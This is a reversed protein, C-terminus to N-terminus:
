GVVNSMLVQRGGDHGEGSVVGGESLEEVLHAARNYGIRFKRQIRSISVSQEEVVFLEVEKYLNDPKAAATPSNGASDEQDVQPLHQPDALAVPEGDIIASLDEGGFADLLGPFLRSLELTMLGFATDFRALADDANVDNLKEHFADGFQLKSITLEADLAFSLNEEWEVSIRTVHMGSAIYNRLEDSELDMGKATLKGGDESPDELLCDNGLKIPSPIEISEYLWGTFTFAPSQNVVPPRVPLSGISKRLASACDEAVKASSADVVMFGDRPSLYAYTRKTRHFARPLLELTVQEKIEDKEKRRVKRAQEAEIEECREEVIEKIVSTPLMKEQHQLCILLCEGATYVLHEGKKGLPSVWGMRSLEQPGCPNFPSELLAAELQDSDISIPKTFRFFRANKFMM